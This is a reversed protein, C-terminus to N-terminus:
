IFRDLTELLNTQDFSAKVIYANAGAEIGKEKDERKSLSTILIIPIEATKKNSRIKAALEFGNMRPMEVDSVVVDFEGEQLRTFGEVGDIATTVLYGAADLINKILMRSTISDEVVLISKAKGDDSKDKESLTSVYGKNNLASKFLDSINLIPVVKGSGLVTAGFINRVRTLQKNFNKALVEQEGIFRDIEFAMQNNGNEFVIVQLYESSNDVSSLELIDSLKVLPIVKDNFTITAKNEITKIDKKNLLLGRIVKATPVIFSSGAVEILVGRFTVISIPLLIKFTTSKGRESEVDVSGGINEIEERVIALGLGRGSLDTVIESTSVGSKFMYNLCEKESIDGVNDESINKSKKYLRKLKETDIGAGDDSIIIQVRNNELQEIKIKINGKASKNNKIRTKPMEIGYDISNRFVHMLPSRLKELIRRDIEIDDGEIVFNIEKELDKAIDRIMKPFVGLLTSFPVTILDRVDDLLNEIKAGTLYAEQHSFNRLENLEKEVNKIHSNAWDYFQILKSIDKDTTSINKEKVNKHLLQKTAQASSFVNLAEKKLIILSNSISQLNETRQIASLKLALMEESQFLLSDLKTTSVRITENSKNLRSYSAKDKKNKIKEVRDIEEGTEEVDEVKGIEDVREIEEVEELEEVEEVEEVREIEDVEEIEGIEALDPNYDPVSDEDIEIGAEVLALDDILKAIRANLDIDEEINSSSLVETIINVTTHLIDFVQTNFQIDDNRVASMVDEFAHCISEIETLNVARSAGKLSHASRYIVEVLEAKREDTVDQELEILNAALLDINEEAEVRFTALIKKLFEAKKDM